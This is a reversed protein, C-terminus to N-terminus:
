LVVVLLVASACHGVGVAAVPVVERPASAPSSSASSLVAVVLVVRLGACDCHGTVAVVVGDAPALVPLVVVLVPAAPEFLLTESLDPVSVVIGLAAVPM